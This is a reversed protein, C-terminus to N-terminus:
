WGCFYDEFVANFSEMSFGTRYGREWLASIASIQVKTDTGFDGKSVARVIALAYIEKEYGHANGHEDAAAIVQAINVEGLFERLDDFHNPNIRHGM